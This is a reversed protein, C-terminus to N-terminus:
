FWSHRCYWSTNSYKLLSLYHSVHESPGSRIRPRVIALLFIHIRSYHTDLGLIDLKLTGRWDNRHKLRMKLFNLLSSWPTAEKLSLSKACSFGLADLYWALYYELWLSLLHLCIWRSAPRNRGWLMGSLHLFTSLFTHTGMRYLVQSGLSSAM